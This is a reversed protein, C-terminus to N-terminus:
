ASDQFVDHRAVVNRVMIRGFRHWVDNSYESIVRECGKPLDRKRRVVVWVESTDAEVIIKKLDQATDAHEYRLTGLVAHHNEPFHAPLSRRLYFHLPVTFVGLPKAHGDQRPTFLVITTDPHFREAIHEAMRKWDTTPRREFYDGIALAHAPALAILFVALVAIAARSRGASVDSGRFLRGALTATTVLGLAIAIVYLPLVSCFYRSAYWHNSHVLFFPVPPILFQVTFLLALCRNRIWLVGLGLVAFPALIYRIANPQVPAFSGAYQVYESITLQFAIPGQDGEEDSMLKETELSFMEIGASHQGTIGGLLGSIACLALLALYFLKRWPVQRDRRFGQAMTWGTAAIMLVIFYPIVSLQSILSFFAAFAFAIWDRRLGRTLARHLTWTMLISGLMVLAYFRAEQSYRIHYANFTLLLMAVAGTTRGGARAGLLYIAPIALLGALYSPFRLAIESDDFRLAFNALVYYLPYARHALAHWISRSAGEYTFTEDLWLSEDIEHWRLIMGIAMVVLIFVALYGMQRRSLPPLSNPEFKERTTPEPNTRNM